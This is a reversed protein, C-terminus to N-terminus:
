WLHPQKVNIELVNLFSNFLFLVRFKEMFLQSLVFLSTGPIWSPNFRLDDEFSNRSSLKPLYKLGDLSLERILSGDILPSHLDNM